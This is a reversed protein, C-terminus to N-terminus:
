HTQDANHRKRRTGKLSPKSRLRKVEYETTNLVLSIKFDDLGKSKLEEVVSRRVSIANKRDDYNQMIDGGNRTCATYYQGQSQWYFPTHCKDGQIYGYGLLESALCLFRYVLAWPDQKGKLLQYIADLDGMLMRKHDPTTDLDNVDRTIRRIAKQLWKNRFKPIYNSGAIHDAKDGFLLRMTIEFDMGTDMTEGVDICNHGPNDDIYRDECCSRMDAIHRM